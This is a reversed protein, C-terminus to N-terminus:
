PGAGNQTVTFIQDAIAISGVRAPGPNAEVRYSIRGSGVNTVGSQVTIWAVTSSATSQCGSQTVLDINGSGGSSGFTQDRPSIAYMCPADQTITETQGAITLTGTRAQGTNIEVGFSVSGNGTGSTASTITLWVVNSRASWQCSSLTAVTVPTGAGAPGVRQNTPTISYTCPAQSVTLTQSAITLTGVRAVGINPAVNFAVSGNGTGATVSTLSIWPANSAATWQCGNQTSVTVPNGAGGAVGVNQSTGSIAYDCPPPGPSPSPSPNPSPSPTSGAQTINSVQGAITIAGVREALPNPAVTFRVSGSGAGSVPPTLSIWNVSSAGTWPCDTATSISVSGAGGNVGVVQSMPTLEFRCPGRQSVQVRSDKVLIDGERSAGGENPAVQFEVNHTGQGSAPSLGSIWDTTTTADWACEPQATVTFVGRGGAADVSSPTTLSLQCKVPTPDTTM